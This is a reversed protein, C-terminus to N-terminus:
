TRREVFSKKQTTQIHKTYNILKEKADPQLKQFNSVFALLHFAIVNCNFTRTFTYIM